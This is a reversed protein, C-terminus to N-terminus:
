RYQNKSCHGSRQRSLSTSDFHGLWCGRLIIGLPIAVFNGVGIRHRALEFADDNEPELVLGVQQRADLIHDFLLLNAIGYEKGADSRYPIVVDVRDAIPGEWGLVDEHFSGVAGASM